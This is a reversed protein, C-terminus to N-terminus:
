FLLLFKGCCSPHTAEQRGVNREGNTADGEYILRSLKERTYASFLAAAFHQLVFIPLESKVEKRPKADAGSSLLWFRKDIDDAPIVINVQCDRFDDATLWIKKPSKANNKM